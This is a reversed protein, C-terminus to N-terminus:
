FLEEDAVIGVRLGGREVLEDEEVGKIALGGDSFWGKAILRGTRLFGDGGL